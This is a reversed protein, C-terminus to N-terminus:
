ILFPNFVGNSDLVDLEGYSGTQNRVAPLPLSTDSPRRNSRGGPGQHVDLVPGRQASDFTFSVTFDFNFEVSHPKTEDYSYSFNDFQGFYAIQDYEIVVNGVWLHAESQDPNYFIANNKYLTFLNMLNQWSASDLKNAYQLGSGSVTAQKFDNLAQSGTIFAGTRASVSMRVQEDFASQFIYGDRNRDQYINKKSFTKTLTEPNILMTLPPTEQMRKLQSLVSLAQDLDSIAVQNAATRGADQDNFDVGNGAITPIQAVQGVPTAVSQQRRFNQNQRQLARFNTNAQLSADILGINVNTPVRTGLPNDGAELAATNAQELLPDFPSRPTSFVGTLARTLTDPPVLSITFPSGTEEDRLEQKSGDIPISQNPTYTATQAPGTSLQGYRRADPLTM